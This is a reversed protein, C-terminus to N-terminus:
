VGLYIERYGELVALIQCARLKEKGIFAEKIISFIAPLREKKNYVKKYINKKTAHLCELGVIM